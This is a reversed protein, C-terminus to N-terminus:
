EIDKKRQEAVFFARNSETEHIEGDKEYIAMAEPLAFKGMIGVKSYILYSLVRKEGPMMNNLNWEIRRTKEDFRTPKEGGFRDYIKVLPPIRDIINVREVYSKANAIISVKLAFEGGKAHVFSVRKKLVLSTKVYQKTIIVIAVIFFIVLLPFLWNTKITVRLSEGPKLEANWTYHVFFGDRRVSDPEPNFTTFLRSIINKRASIEAESIINGENEKEIIHTNIVFGYDEETTKLLNKEVFRITGEVNANEGKFNIKANMTYFGALLKEFDEKNVQISFDKKERAKLSIDEEFEFFPSSFKVNLSDFDFNVRNELYISISNTEPSIEGSGIEFADELDIINITIKESIKEGNTGQIFYELTNFGKNGFDERPYIMLQVDKTEGSNIQVTGKPAMSFGLLNYFQFNDGSGLNKIKLEFVAPENVNKIMVERSSETQVELNVASALPLFILLVALFILKKM